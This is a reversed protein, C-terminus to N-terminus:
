FFIEAEHQEFPRLGPYPATVELVDPMPDGTRGCSNSLAPSSGLILVRAAILHCSTRVGCRHQPDARPHWTWYPEGSAECALRWWGGLSLLSPKCGRPLRRAM